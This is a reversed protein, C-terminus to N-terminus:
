IEPLLSGLVMADMTMVSEGSAVMVMVWAMRFSFIVGRVILPPTRPIRPTKVRMPVVWSCRSRIPRRAAPPPMTEEAKPNMRVRCQFGGTFGIVKVAHCSVQPPRVVSGMAKAMSPNMGGCDAM